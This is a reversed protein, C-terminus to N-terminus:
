LAKQYIWQIDEKCDTDIKNEGFEKPWLVERAYQICHEPIRPTNAITCSNFVRVKPLTSTMCEYCSTQFPKVVLVQGNFQETGGDILVRRTSPDM